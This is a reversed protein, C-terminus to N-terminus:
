LAALTVMMICTYDGADASQENTFNSNILTRRIPTGRDLLMNAATNVFAKMSMLIQGNHPAETFNKTLPFSKAGLYGFIDSFSSTVGNTTFDIDYVTNLVDWASSYDGTEQRAFRPAGQDVGNNGSITASFPCNAYALNWTGTNGYLEEAKLITHRTTGFNFNVPNAIAEIYKDVTMKLNFSASRQGSPVVAQVSFIMIAMAILLLSFIKKM